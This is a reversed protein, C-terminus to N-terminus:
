PEPPVLKGMAVAFEELDSLGEQMVQHLIAHDIDTYLHVLRNRLGTARALREGLEREILNGEALVLPIERLQAPKRLGKAAIVHNGLDLTAELAIHLYHESLARETESGLYQERPIASLAVLKRLAERLKSLRTAAIERDIL